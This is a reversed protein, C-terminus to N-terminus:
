IMRGKCERIDLGLKLFKRECVLIFEKELERSEGWSTHGISLIGFRKKM